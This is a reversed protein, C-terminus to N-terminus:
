KVKFSVSYSFHDGYASVGEVIVSFDGPLDSTYFSIDPPVGRELRIEPDWFLTERLDPIAPDYSEGDTYRQSNFSVSTRLPSGEIITHKLNVPVYDENESNFISVIGNFELNGFSWPISLVEISTIQDSSLDIIDNLDPVYVGNMFFVPEGPMITRTRSCIMAATLTDGRERIRLVPIIETAIEPLNDLPVFNGPDIISTPNRYLLPITYFPRPRWLPKYDYQQTNYAQQIRKVTIAEEIYGNINDHTIVKRPTFPLPSFKERVLIRYNANKINPEYIALYLTKGHYYENQLFYFSGDGQTTTYKLNTISNNATLFVTAGELPENTGADLVRGSIISNSVEPIILLEPNARHFVPSPSLSNVLLTEDRTISLSASGIMFDQDGTYFSLNVRERIGYTRKNTIIGLPASGQDTIMKVDEKDSNGKDTIEGLHMRNSNIFSTIDNDFRNIVMLQKSFVPTQNIIMRNTWAAINYFGTGLTDPIIISGRMIEDEIYLESESFATGDPRAISLYAIRSSESPNEGDGKLLYGKFFLRDGAFYVDKDTHIYLSEARMDEPLPQAALTLCRGATHTLLITISILIIRKMTYDSYGSHHFKM